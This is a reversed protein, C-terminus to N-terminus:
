PGLQRVRTRWGGQLSFLLFPRAGGGARGWVKTAHVAWCPLFLAASTNAANLVFVLREHLRVRAALAAAARTQAKAEKKPIGAKLQPTGNTQHPLRPKSNQPKSDFGASLPVVRLALL